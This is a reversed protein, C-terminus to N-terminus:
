GTSIRYSWISRCLFSRSPIMLTLLTAYLVLNAWRYPIRAIGYGALASILIQGATQLVAILASNEMGSLFLVESDNFLESINEFHLTTPFFTWRPSTIEMDTALGNRIILYFPLLFIIALIILAGYRAIISILKGPTLGNARREPASSTQEMRSAETAM